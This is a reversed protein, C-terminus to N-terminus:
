RGDDGYRDERRLSIDDDWPGPHRPLDALNPPKKAAADILITARYDGASIGEPARETVIKDEAIHIELDRVPM